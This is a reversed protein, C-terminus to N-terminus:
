RRNPPHYPGDDMRPSSDGNREMHPSVRSALQLEQVPLTFAQRSSSGDQDSDDGNDYDDGIRINDNYGDCDYFIRHGDGIWSGDRIAVPPLHVANMITFQTYPTFKHEVRTRSRFRSSRHPPTEYESDANPRMDQRGVRGICSSLIDPAQRRSAEPMAWTYVNLVHVGGYTAKRSAIVMLIINIGIELHM